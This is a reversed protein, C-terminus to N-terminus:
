TASAMASPCRTYCTPRSSMVRTRTAAPTSATWASPRQEPLRERRRGHSGNNLSHSWMYNLQAAIGYHFRRQLSTQWGAFNGYNIADKYDVQGFNPNPRTTTGYIFDNHYTRTLNTIRM